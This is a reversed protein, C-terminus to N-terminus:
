LTSLATRRILQISNFQVVPNRVMCKKGVGDCTLMDSSCRELGVFGFVHTDLILRHAAGMDVDRDGRGKDLVVRGSRDYRYCAVAWQGARSLDEKRRVFQGYRVNCAGCGTM